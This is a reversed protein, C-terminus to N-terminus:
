PRGNRASLARHVEAASIVQKAANNRTVWTFGHGYLHDENIASGKVLFPQLETLQPPILIALVERGDNHFVSILLRDLTPHILSNIISQVKPISVELRSTGRVDTIVDCEYPDKSTGFGIILLGGSRLNALSAVDLALEFRQRPDQTGYMKQKAELWDTEPQGILAEWKGGSLKQYIALPSDVVESGGHLLAIVLQCHFAAEIMSMEQPIDITLSAQPIGDSRDFWFNSIRLRHPQLTANLIDDASSADMIVPLCASVDAGRVEGNTVWITILDHDTESLIPALRSYGLSIGLAREATPVRIHLAGDLFDPSGSELAKCFAHATEGFTLDSIQDLDVVAEYNFELRFGNPFELPIKPDM